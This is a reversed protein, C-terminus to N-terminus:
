LGAMAHCCIAESRANAAVYRHANGALVAVVRIREVLTELFHAHIVDQQEIKLSVNQLRPARDALPQCEMVADVHLARIDARDHM